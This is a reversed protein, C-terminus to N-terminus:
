IVFIIFMIILEDYFTISIVRNIIFIILDFLKIIIMAFFRNYILIFFISSFFFSFKYHM